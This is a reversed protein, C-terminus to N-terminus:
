PRRWSLLFRCPWRRRVTAGHLGAQEAMLLAEAPTFAARVSLPGDVHVVRSRSLARAGVLALFYGLRGRALDNILVLQRAQRGLCRLLGIAASEDLHHLFLSCIIADFEETLGDKLVDREQFVVDATEQQAAQRAHEIATHSVDYGTFQMPLGCRRAMKWLRIPVDGGGTAVDLARLPAPCERALRALAPWLIRASGSFYNIRALGALAASHQASDLGPQDMIEPQRDRQRLSQLFM